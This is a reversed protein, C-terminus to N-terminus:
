SNYPPSLFWFVPSARFFFLVEGAHCEFEKGPPPLLGRDPLPPPKGSAKEGGDGRSGGHPSMRSQGGGGGGRRRRRVSRGECSQPILFSHSVARSKKSQTRCRQSNPVQEEAWPVRESPSEKEEGGGGGLGGGRTTQSPPLIGRVDPGVGGHPDGGGGGKLVADDSGPIRMPGAGPRWAMHWTGRSCALKASPSEFWNKKKEKEASDFGHRRLLNLCIM